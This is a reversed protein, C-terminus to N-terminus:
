PLAACWQGGFPSWCLLKVPRCSRQCAACSQPNVLECLSIVCHSTMPTQDHNSINLSHWMALMIHMIHPCPNNIYILYSMWGLKPDKSRHCTWLSPLTHFSFTSIFSFLITCEKTGFCPLPDPSTSLWLKWLLVHINNLFTQSNALAIFPNPTCTAFSECSLVM